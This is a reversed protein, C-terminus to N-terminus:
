FFVLAAVLLALSPLRACEGLIALLGIDVDRDLGAVVGTMAVLGAALAVASLLGLAEVLVAALLWLLGGVAVVYLVLKTTRQGFRAPLTTVSADEDTAVDRTNSIEAGIFTGAAFYGILVWATPGIPAGTFAIPFMVVTVGWAVAVLSSNVLFVEKLRTIAGLRGPALNVAYLVWVAAPFLALITSLPGNAVAITLAIGYSVAAAASLPRRYREVFATRRPNSIADVDADVLRDNAYITFTICGVAVPALSAVVDLVLMALVVELAAIIAIYAGSFVLVDRFTRLRRYRAQPQELWPADSDPWGVTRSDSAM